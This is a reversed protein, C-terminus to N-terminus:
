DVEITRALSDSRHDSVHIVGEPSIRENRSCVSLRGRSEVCGDHRSGLSAAMNRLATLQAAM